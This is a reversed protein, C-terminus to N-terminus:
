FQSARILRDVAQNVMTLLQPFRDYQHVIAPVDGEEDVVFDGQILREAEPVYGVTFFIKRDLVVKAETSLMGNYYVYNLVGQDNCTGNEHMGYKLMADALVTFGRANAAVTGACIPTRNSLAHLMEPGWCDQIWKSNHKCTGIKVGAHEPALFIDKNPLGVFPNAQFFSDRFDVALCYGKHLQCEDRYLRFRDFLMDGQSVYNRLNFNYQVALTSFQFTDVWLVLPGVYHKRLPVVFRLLDDQSLGVAFSMVVHDIDEIQHPVNQEALWHTSCFVLLLAFALRWLLGKNKKALLTTM